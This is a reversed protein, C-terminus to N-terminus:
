ESATREEKLVVSLTKAGRGGHMCQFVHVCM